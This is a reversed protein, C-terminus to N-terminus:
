LATLSSVHEIPQCAYYQACHRAFLVYHIYYVVYLVYVKVRLIVLADLRFM